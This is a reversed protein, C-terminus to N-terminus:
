VEISGASTGNMMARELVSELGDARTKGELRRLAADAAEYGDASDLAAQVDRLVPAMAKSAPAMSAAVVRDVYAYLVRSLLAVWSEL